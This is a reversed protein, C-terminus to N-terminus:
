RNVRGPDNNGGGRTRIAAWLNFGPQKGLSDYRKVDMVAPWGRYWFTGDKTRWNEMSAVKKMQEKSESATGAYVTIRNYEWLVYVHILQNYHNQPWNQNYQTWGAVNPYSGTTKNHFNAEPAGPCCWEIADLEGSEPWAGNGEFWVSAWVNAKGWSADRGKPLQMMTWIEIELPKDSENAPPNFHHQPDEFTSRASCGNEASLRMYQGDKYIESRNNCKGMPGGSFLGGGRASRWSAQVLDRFKDGDKVIWYPPDQPRSLDTVAPPIKDARRCFYKSGELMKTSGPCCEIFKGLSTPNGYPDDNEKTCLAKAPEKEPKAEPQKAEQANGTARCAYKTGELVKASGACCDILKGLAGPTGYPDNGVKTCTPLLDASVKFSLFLTFLPFLWFKTKFARM